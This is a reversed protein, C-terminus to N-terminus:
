AARSSQEGASLKKPKNRPLYGPWSGPQPKYIFNRYFRNLGVRLKGVAHPVPAAESLSDFLPRLREQQRPIAVTRAYEYLEVDSRNLERIDDTYRDLEAKPRKGTKQSWAASANRIEYRIDLPQPHALCRLWQLHEDYAEVLGVLAIKEDLVQKAAAADDCGALYRTQLNNQRFGRDESRLWEGLDITGELHRYHQFNSLVRKVPDRLLTHYRIGPIVDELRSAPRLAHGAVSRLGPRWRVLARFEDATYLMSPRDRAIVDLHALGYNRRLIDLLTTGGCKPIHIYALM